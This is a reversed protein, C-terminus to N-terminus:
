NIINLSDILGQRVVEPIDEKKADTYFDRLHKFREEAQSYKADLKQYDENSILGEDNAILIHGYIVQLRSAFCALWSNNSGGTYEREIEAPSIEIVHILEDIPDEFKKPGEQGTM